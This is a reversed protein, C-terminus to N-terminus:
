KVINFGKFKGKKDTTFPTSSINSGCQQNNNCQPQPTICMMNITALYETNPKFSDKEKDFKAIGNKGTTEQAHPIPVCKGNQCACLPAGKEFVMVLINPIGTGQNNRVGIQNKGQSWVAVTFGLFLIFFFCLSKLSRLHVPNM